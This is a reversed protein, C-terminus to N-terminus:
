QCPVGCAAVTGGKFMCDLWPAGGDAGHEDAVSQEGDPTAALCGGEVLRAYVVSASTSSSPTCAFLIRGLLAILAWRGVANV